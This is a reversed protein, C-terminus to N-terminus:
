AALGLELLTQLLVNTGLEIPGWDSREEPAHSVGGISPVFIMGTKTITSLFQTDHGAGSPMLLADTGESLVKQSARAITAVISDSCPAPALCSKENIQLQLRCTAAVEHLKARCAEGLSLMVEEDCDRCNLSFDARGPVSHSFNPHLAVHGVTIRSSAAGTQKLIGPIAAGFMSLGLFADKRMEMPTTGSHNAEGLLTVDWNLTGAIGTVVGVPLGRSELVPGQEIHLELFAEFEAASRQAQRYEEPDFGANRMAETLLQGDDSTASHFWEHDVQGTMAQSGLMGGFRGEEESFAIVEIPFQFDRLAGAACADILTTACELAAM